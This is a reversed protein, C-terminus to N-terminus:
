GNYKMGLIEYAEQIANNLDRVAVPSFDNRMRQHAERIDTIYEKLKQTKLREALYSEYYDCKMLDKRVYVTDCNLYLGPATGLYFGEEDLSTLDIAIEDPAEIQLDNLKEKELEELLAKLEAIIQNYRDQINM